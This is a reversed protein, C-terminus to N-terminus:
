HHVDRDFSERSDAGWILAAVDFAILGAVVLLILM